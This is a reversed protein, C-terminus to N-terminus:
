AGDPADLGLFEALARQSGTAPPPRRSDTDSARAPCPGDVEGARQRLAWALELARLDGALLENRLPALATGLGLDDHEGLADTNWSADPERWLDIVTHRGVAAATAVSSRSRRRSTSGRACYRTAVTLPLAKAPVRLILRRTGDGAHYIFLDFHRATLEWADAKFNGWEYTNVLRTATITARSTIRRLRRQVALSLPADIATFEYYQSESM